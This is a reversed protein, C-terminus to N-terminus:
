ANHSIDDAPVPCFEIHINSSATNCYTALAIWLYLINEWLQMIENIIQKFLSFITSDEDFLYM